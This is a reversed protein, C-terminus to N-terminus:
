SMRSAGFRTTLISNCNGLVFRYSQRSVRALVILTAVTTRGATKRGYIAQVIRGWGAAWSADLEVRLDGLGAM